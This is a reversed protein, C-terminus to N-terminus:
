GTECPKRECILLNTSLWLSSSVGRCIELAEKKQYWTRAAKAKMFEMRKRKLETLGGTEAHTERKQAVAELNGEPWLFPYSDPEGQKKKKEWPHCNLAAQQGTDSFLQKM